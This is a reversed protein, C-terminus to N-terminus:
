GNVEPCVERFRANGRRINGITEADTTDGHYKIPLDPRLGECVGIAPLRDRDACAVIVGLAVASVCAIWITRTM